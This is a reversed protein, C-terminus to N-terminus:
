GSLLHVPPQARLGRVRRSNCPVDPHLLLHLVAEVRRSGFGRIEELLTVGGGGGPAYPKSRLSLDVTSGFGADM